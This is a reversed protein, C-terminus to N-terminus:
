PFFPPTLLCNNFDPLCLVLFLIHSPPFLQTPHKSHLLTPAPDSIKFSPAHFFTEPRTPYLIYFLQLFDLNMNQKNPHTNTLSYSSFNRSVFSCNFTFTLIQFLFHQSGGSFDQLPKTYPIYQLILLLSHYTIM